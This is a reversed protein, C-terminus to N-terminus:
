APLGAACHVSSLSIPQSSSTGSNGRVEPKPLQMGAQAEGPQCGSALENSPPPLAHAARPQLSQEDSM